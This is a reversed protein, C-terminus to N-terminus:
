LHIRNWQYADGALYAAIQDAGVRELFGIDEPQRQGEGLPTTQGTGNFFNRFYNRLSEVPRAASARTWHHQVKWDIQQFRRHFKASWRFESRMGLRCINM